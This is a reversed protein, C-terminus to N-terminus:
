LAEALCSGSRAATVRCRILQGTKQPGSLELNVFNSALALTGGEKNKLVLATYKKGLM